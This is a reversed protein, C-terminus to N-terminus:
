QRIVSCRAPFFLFGEVINAHDQCRAYSHVRGSIVFTMAAFWFRDSMDCSGAPAFVIESPDLFAQVRDDFVDAATAVANGQFMILSGSACTVTIIVVGSM